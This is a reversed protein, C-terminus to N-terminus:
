SGPFKELHNDMGLTDILDRSFIKWCGFFVMSVGFVGKESVGWGNRLMGSEIEMHRRVTLYGCSDAITASALVLPVDIIDRRFGLGLRKFRGVQLAMVRVVVDVPM